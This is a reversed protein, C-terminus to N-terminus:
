SYYRIECGKQNASNARPAIPGSTLASSRRAPPRPLDSTVKPSRASVPTCVGCACKTTASKGDGPCHSRCLGARRSEGSHATGSQKMQRRRPWFSNWRHAAGAAATQRQRGAGTNPSKARRAETDVVNLVDGAEPTGNLGLVEVPTSPGATPSGTARLRQDLRASQGVTRWGCLHRWTACRGTKSWFLPWPDM